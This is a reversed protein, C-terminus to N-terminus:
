VEKCDILIYKYSSYFLKLNEFLEDLRMLGFNYKDNKIKYFNFTMFRIKEVELKLAYPNIKNVVKFHNKLIKLYEREITKNPTTNEM